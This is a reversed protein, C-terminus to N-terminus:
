LAICLKKMLIEQLKSLQHSKLQERVFNTAIITFTNTKKIFIKQKVM